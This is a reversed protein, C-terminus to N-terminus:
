RCRLALLATLPVVLRSGAADLVLHDAAVAMLRGSVPGGGALDLSVEAGTLARCESLVGLRARTEQQPTGSAVVASRLAAFPVITIGNDCALVLGDALARVLHGSRTTGDLLTVRAPAGSSGSLRDALTVQGAEAQSLEEALGWTEAEAAQHASALDWLQPLLEDM